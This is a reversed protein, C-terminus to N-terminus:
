LAKGFGPLSDIWVPEAQAVGVHRYGSFDRVVTGTGEDLPYYAVMDGFVNQAAFSLMFILSIFYASKKYM